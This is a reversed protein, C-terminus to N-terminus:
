SRETAPSTGEDEAEHFAKRDAETISPTPPEKMPKGKADLGHLFRYTGEEVAWRPRGNLFGAIVNQAAHREDGEFSESVWPGDPTIEHIRYRPLKLGATGRCVSCPADVRDSLFDSGFRLLGCGACLMTPGPNVDHPIPNGYIDLNHLVRTTPAAAEAARKDEAENALRVGDTLVWRILWGWPAMFPQAATAAHPGVRDWIDRWAYAEVVPGDGLTGDDRLPWAVTEIVGGDSRWRGYYNVTVRVRGSSGWAMEATRTIAPERGPHHHYAMIEAYPRLRAIEAELDARTPKKKSM